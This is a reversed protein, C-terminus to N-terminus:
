IEFELKEGHWKGYLEDDKNFVFVCNQLADVIFLFELVDDDSSQTLIVLNLM